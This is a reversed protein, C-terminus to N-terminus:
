GAVVSRLAVQMASASSFREDRDKACAAAIVADLEQAIDQRVEPAAVSISPIPEQRQLALIEGAEMEAVGNFPHLGTVSEYLSVGLAYLDARPDVMGALTTQEPAMYRPDGILGTPAADRLLRCIGFDILKIIAIRRDFSDRTVFINDPKVDCHVIGRTHVYDLASLTQCFMDVLLPLPIRRGLDVILGLDRGRLYDLTMWETDDGPLEGRDLVRVLNPHSFNAGITAERRFRDREGQPVDRKLIKLAVYRDMVPDFARYIKGMGGEGVLEVIDFTKSQIVQDGVDLDEVSSERREAATQLSRPFAPLTGKRPSRTRPSERNM